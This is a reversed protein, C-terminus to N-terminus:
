LRIVKLIKSYNGAEARIFYLGGSGAIDLEVKGEESSTTQLFRNYSDYVTIKLLQGNGASTTVWIKGNTPNPYVTVQSSFEDEIGAIVPLEPITAYDSDGFKNYAKIRYRMLSGRIVDDNAGATNSQLQKLLVFDAGALSRELKFGAENNSADTWSLTVTTYDSAFKYTFDKPAIPSIWAATSVNVENTYASQELASYAGVKYLYTKSPSATIDIFQTTNASISDIAKYTAGDSRLIQFGTEFGSKDDWSLTITGNVNDITNTLNAPASPIDFNIKILNFVPQLRVSNFSGIVYYTAHTSNVPVAGGVFGYGVEELMFNETSEITGNLKARSFNQFLVGNIKKYQGMILFYDGDLPQIASISGDFVALSLNDLLVGNKDFQFVPNPTLSSGGGMSFGTMIFNDNAIVKIMLIGYNPVYQSALDIPSMGDQSVKKLFGTNAPFSDGGILLHGDSQIAIARVNQDSTLLQSNFSADVTGDTDIRLLNHSSNSSKDAYGFQGGVIVKGSIPVLVITNVGTGVSAVNLSLDFGNDLTGDANLRVLCNRNQTGVKDFVGGVLIKGSPLIKISYVARNFGNQLNSSFSNDLSGDPNLRALNNVYNNNIHNFRGGILIKGDAQVELAKVEAIGGIIPNFSQVLTGDSNLLAIGSRLDTGLKDFYGTYLISTASIAIQPPDLMNVNASMSGDITPFSSDASGDSKIKMLSYYFFIGDYRVGGLLLGGAHLVVKSISSQFFNGAIGTSIFNSDVAGSSLLRVINKAGISNFSDFQGTLIIKDGDIAISNLIAFGSSLVPGSGIVFSNDISGDANLRVVRNCAINNFTTFTGAVLIKGDAQVALDFNFIGYSDPGTGTNFSNDISGDNKIKQITKVSNSTIIYSGDALPTIRILGRNIQSPVVLSNDISGNQNLRMMIPINNAAGGVMIKGSPDIAISFIEGDAPLDPPNFSTDLSGDLNFRMINNHVPQNGVSQIKGGAVLIKGDAQIASAYITAYDTIVPHFNADVQSQSKFPVLLAIVCIFYFNIRM